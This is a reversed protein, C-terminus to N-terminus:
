RKGPQEAPWTEGVAAQIKKALRNSIRLPVDPVKAFTFRTIKWFILSKEQKARTETWPIFLPPHGIRFMFPVAIQIGEENAAINLCHNYSTSYRFSGSQWTWKKGEIRNTSRYYKGLERWGGVFSIALGILIWLGIFFPIFYLPFQNPDVPFPNNMENEWNLLTKIWKFSKQTL